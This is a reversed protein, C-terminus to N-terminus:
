PRAYLHDHLAGTWRGRLEAGASRRYHPKFDWFSFGFYERLLFPGVHGGWFGERELYSCFGRAINISWPIDSKVAGTVGSPYGPYGQTTEPCGAHGAPLYPGQHELRLRFTDGCHQNKSGRCTKEPYLSDWKDTHAREQSWFAIAHM